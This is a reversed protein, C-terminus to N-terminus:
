SVDISQQYKYHNIHLMYVCNYRRVAYVCMCAVSEMWVSFHLVFYKINFECKAYELSVSAVVMWRMSRVVSGCCAKNNTHACPFILLSTGNKQVWKSTLHTYTPPSHTGHQHATMCVRVCQGHTKTHANQHQHFFLPFFFFLSLFFSWFIIFYAQWKTYHHAMSTLSLFCMYRCLVFMWRCCNGITFIFSFFFHFYHATLIHSRSNSIVYLIYARTRQCCIYLAQRHSNWGNEPFNPAITSQGSMHYYYYYNNNNLHLRLSVNGTKSCHFPHQHRGILYGFIKDCRRYQRFTSVFSWSKEPQVDSVIGDNRNWHNKCTSPLCMWTTTIIRIFHVFPEWAVALLATM